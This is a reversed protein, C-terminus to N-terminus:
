QGPLFVLRLAFVRTLLLVAAAIAFRRRDIVSQEQKEEVALSPPVKQDAKDQAPHTGMSLHGDSSSTGESEVEPNVRVLGKRKRVFKPILRPRNLTSDGAATIAASSPTPLPSLADVSEPVVSGQLFYKGCREIVVDVRQGMIREDAPVLVQQYSKNHGIYHVGDGSIETVLITQREGVYEDYTTYSEFLASAERSRAKVQDTPLRSLRAAPTGPRPYFQSIHLVPFRYKRLLQM